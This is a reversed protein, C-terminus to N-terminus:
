VSIQLIFKSDSKIKSEDPNGGIGDSLGKGRQM